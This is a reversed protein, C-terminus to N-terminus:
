VSASLNADTLRSLGLLQDMSLDEFELAVFHAPATSEDSGAARPTSRVVRARLETIPDAAEVEFVITSDAVQPVPLQLLAGLVSLDVLSGECGDSLRVNLPGLNVRETRRRERM